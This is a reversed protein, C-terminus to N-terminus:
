IFLRRKRIFNFAIGVKANPQEEAMEIVANSDVLIRFQGRETPGLTEPNEVIDFAGESLNTILEIGMIEDTPSTNFLDIVFEKKTDFGFDFIVTGDEPIEIGDMSAELIQAV